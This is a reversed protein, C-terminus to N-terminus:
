RGKRDEQLSKFAEGFETEGLKVDPQARQANPSMIGEQGTRMRAPGFDNEVFAAYSYKGVRKSLTPVDEVAGGRGRQPTPIPLSHEERLQDPPLGDTMDDASITVTEELEREVEDQTVDLLPLYNPNVRVVVDDAVRFNPPTRGAVELRISMEMRVRPFTILQRFDQIQNLIDLFRACLIQKVEEGNLSNYVLESPLPM